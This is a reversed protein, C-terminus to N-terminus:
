GKEWLWFKAGKSGRLACICFWRLVMAKEDKKIQLGPENSWYVRIHNKRMLYKSSFGTM